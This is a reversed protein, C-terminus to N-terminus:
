VHEQQPHLVTALKYVRRGPAPPQQILPRLAQNMTQLITALEEPTAHFIVERYGVMDRVMDIGEPRTAADEAYAIFDHLLMLAYTTFYRIHDDATLGAMDDPGLAPLQRLHYTKEQIGNVLRTEAVALVEGELLHKLHRYISSTPVDPLRDSIEQTTLTENAM